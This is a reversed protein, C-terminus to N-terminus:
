SAPAVVAPVAVATAPKRALLLLNNQWAAPLHRQIASKVRHRLSERPEIGTRDGRARRHAALDSWAPATDVIREAAPILGYFEVTRRLEAMTFERQHHVWNNDTTLFEEITVPHARVRRVYTLWQDFRMGNPTSILLAGGPRIRNVVDTMTPRLVSLHEIVDVMLVLDFQEGERLERRMAGSLRLAAAVSDHRPTAFPEYGTVRAGADHLLALVFPYGCGYDLVDLDLRALAARAFDVVALYRRANKALLSELWEDGAPAIAGAIRRLAHGSDAAPPASSM